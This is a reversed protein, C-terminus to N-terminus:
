AEVPGLAALDGPTDIDPNGGEIPVELVLEPREALVPGLGRDGAAEDALDFADRRLLLPNPGGGDAYRPAVVPCDTTRAAAMLARIVGPRTRPQDGLVVVAARIPPDADDEALAEVAALGVQLSSSLFRPDPNRVRREDLWEIGDEIEDAAHGLVVVIDDIGAERVGDLVHELLPRGDLVALAKPSGFRTSAGAALVVAAVRM